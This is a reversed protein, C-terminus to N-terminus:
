AASLAALTTTKTSDIIGDANNDLELKVSGGGLFTVYLKSGSGTITFKGSTYGSTSKVIPSTAEIQISSNNAGITSSVQMSLPSTTYTTGNLARSTQISMNNMTITATSTGVTATTSLNGNTIGRTETTSTKLSIDISGNITAKTGSASVSFNLYNARVIYNSSSTYSLLTMSLTGNLAVGSEICNSYVLNASDGVTDVLNSAAYASTTISGGGTCATTQSSTVGAVLEKRSTALYRNIEQLTLQEINPIEASTTEVAVATAKGSVSGVATNVSQVGLNGVQDQNSSSIVAAPAATPIPVPTNNGGGGGGGGCAALLALTSLGVLLTRNM